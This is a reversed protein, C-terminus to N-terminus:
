IETGDSENIVTEIIDLLKIGSVAIIYGIM